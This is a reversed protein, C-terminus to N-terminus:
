RGHFPKLFGDRADENCRQREPSGWPPKALAEAPLTPGAPRGCRGATRHGLSPSARLGVVRLLCEGLGDAHAIGAVMGYNPQRLLLAPSEAPLRVEM